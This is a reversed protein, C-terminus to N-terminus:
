RGETKGDKKGLTSPQTIEESIEEQESFREEAPVLRNSLMHM